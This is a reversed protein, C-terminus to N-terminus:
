TAEKPSDGSSPPKVPLGATAPLANRYAEISRLVDENLGEVHHHTRLTSLVFGEPDPQSWPHRLMEEFTPIAKHAAVVEELAECDAVWAANYAANVDPDHGRGNQYAVELDSTARDLGARATDFAAVAARYRGLLGAAKESM